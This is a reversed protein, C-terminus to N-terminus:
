GGGTVGLGISFVAENRDNGDTRLITVGIEPQVTAEGWAGFSFGATVGGLYITRENSDPRWIAGGRPSVVLEVEADLQVGLYFTPYFAVTGSTFDTGHEEWAVVAPAAVSIAGGGTEYVRLKPTIGLASVNGDLGASRGLQIGLEAGDKIGHAVRLEGLYFPLRATDSSSSLRAIGASVRTEGPRLVRASQMQTCGGLLTLAVLVRM